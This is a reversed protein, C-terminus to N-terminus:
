LYFSQGEEGLETRAPTQRPVSSVDALSTNLQRETDKTYVGCACFTHLCPLSRPDQFLELCMGCQLEDHVDDMMM